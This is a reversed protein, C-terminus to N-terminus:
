GRRDRAVLYVVRSAREPWGNQWDRLRVCKLRAVQMRLAAIQPNVKSSTTMAARRCLFDVWRAMADDLVVSSLVSTTGAAEPLALALTM